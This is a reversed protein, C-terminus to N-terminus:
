LAGDHQRRVRYLAGDHQRRVRYFEHTLEDMDPQQIADKERDLTVHFSANPIGMMYDQRIQVHVEHRGQECEDVERGIATLYAAIAETHSADDDAFENYRLRLIVRKPKGDDVLAPVKAASMNILDTLPHLFVGEQGKISVRKGPKPPPDADRRGTPHNWTRM